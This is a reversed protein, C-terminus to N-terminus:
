ILQSLFCNKVEELIGSHQHVELMVEEVLFLAHQQLMENMQEVVLMWRDVGIRFQVKNIIGMAEVVLNNHRINLTM